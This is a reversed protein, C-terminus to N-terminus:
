DGNANMAAAGGRDVGSVCHTLSVLGLALFGIVVVAALRKILATKVTLTNTCGNQAAFLEADALTYTYASAYNYSSCSLLVFKKSKV